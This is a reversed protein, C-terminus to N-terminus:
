VDLINTLNIFINSIISDRRREKRPKASKFELYVQDDDDKVDPLTTKWQEGEVFEEVINAEGISESSMRIIDDESKSRHEPAMAVKKESCIDEYLTINQDDSSSEEDDHQVNRPTSCHSGERSPRQSSIDESDAEPIPSALGSTLRQPTRLQGHLLRMPTRTLDVSSAFLDSENFCRKMTELDKIRIKMKELNTKNDELQIKQLEIDNGIDAKFSGLKTNITTVIEDVVETSIYNEIKDIISAEVMEGIKGCDRELRQVSLNIESKFTAFDQQVDDIDISKDEKVGSDDNRTDLKNRLADIEARMKNISEKSLAADSDEPVKTEIKMELRRTELTVRRMESDINTLMEDMQSHQSEKFTELDGQLRSIMEIMKTQERAMTIINDQLGQYNVHLQALADDYISSHM